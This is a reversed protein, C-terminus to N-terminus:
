DRQVFHDISIALARAHMAADLPVLPAPQQVYKEISPKASPMVECFREVTSSAQTLQFVTDIHEKLAAIWAAATFQYSANLECLNSDAEVTLRALRADRGGPCKWSLPVRASPRRVIIQGAYTSTSAVHPSVVGNALAFGGCPIKLRSDYDTATLVFYAPEFRCLHMDLAAADAPQVISAIRALLYDYLADYATNFAAQEAPARVHGRAWTMIATRIRGNMRTKM